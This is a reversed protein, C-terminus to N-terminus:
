PANMFPSSDFDPIGSGNQDLVLVMYFVRAVLSKKDM